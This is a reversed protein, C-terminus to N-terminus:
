DKLLDDVEKEIGDKLAFFMRDIAFDRDHKTLKEKKLDNTTFHFLGDFHTHDNEKIGFDIFKGYKGIESLNIQNDRIDNEIDNPM